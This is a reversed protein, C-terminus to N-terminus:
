QLLFSEGTWVFKRKKLITKLKEKEEESVSAASVCVELSNESPSVSASVLYPDLLKLLDEYEDVGMTDPRSVLQGIDFSIESMKIWDKTYLSVQSDTEPIHYSVAVCVVSDGKAYPLLRMQLSASKSLRVAMYDNACTDIATKEKLLNDTELDLGKSKFTFCDERLSRNLYPFLSDPMNLWVEKISQSFAMQSSVFALLLLLFCKKLMIGGILRFIPFGKVAM